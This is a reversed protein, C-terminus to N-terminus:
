STDNSIGEEESFKNKSIIEGEITRLEQGCLKKRYEDFDESTRGLSDGEVVKKLVKVFSHIGQTM